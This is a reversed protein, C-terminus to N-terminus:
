EEDEPQTEADIQQAHELFQEWEDAEDQSEDYDTRYAEALAEAAELATDFPGQWETCDMYGPASLRACWGEEFAIDLAEKLTTITLYEQPIPGADDTIAWTDFSLRPRMFM